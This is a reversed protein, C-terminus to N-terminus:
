THRAKRACSICRGKVTMRGCGGACVVRPLRRRRDRQYAASAGRCKPCRCRLMVYCYLSGHRTDTATQRIRTLTVDAGAPFRDISISHVRYSDSDRAQALILQELEVDRQPINM